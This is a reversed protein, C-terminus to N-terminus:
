KFFYVFIIEFFIIFIKKIKKITKLKKVEYILNKKLPSRDFHIVFSNEIMNCKTGYYKNNLIIDNTLYKRIFIAVEGLEDLEKLEEVEDVENEGVEKIKIKTKYKDLKKIFAEDRINYIKNDEIIKKNYLINKIYDENCLSFDSFAVVDENIKIEDDDNYM